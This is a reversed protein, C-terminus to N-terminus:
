DTVRISSFSEEILANMEDSEVLVFYSASFAVDNELLVLRHVQIGISELSLMLRIGVEGQATTFEEQSVVEVFPTEEFIELLLDVYEYLDPDDLVGVDEEAISLLNVGDSFCETVSLCIEEFGSLASADNSWDLPYEITFLGFVSQYVQMDGNESVVPTPTPPPAMPTPSDDTPQEVTLIYGGVDGIVASEVIILYIGSHPARYTMEANLGFVGGGSDDDSVLQTQRAGEQGVTIYTDVLISDAHIYIEEGRILSVTYVDIDGPYDINGMVVDPKFITGRDPIDRFRAVNHSALVSASSTASSLQMVDIFYPADLDIEVEGVETGVYENDVYAINNGFADFVYLVNDSLGGVEIDVYTGAPENIVFVGSDWENALSVVPHSRQGGDLPIRREGLGDVDEGAILGQIRVNLDSASAVLGFEADSFSFGSIGIVTGLESVLVGGSQGGTITADTQFYTMDIADWQRIRSVLGRTITAEPFRDVEGPYGILYVESGVISDEGDQLTLPTKDTEIPGLLALDAMLDWDVLPVDIFETQDPFVVRVSEFPWVVHANTLIYGDEILIGSGTSINSEIFVTSPSIRNFIESASLPAPTPTSTPTPTNTPTPTITPTNTVTATPPVPTSTPTPEPETACGALWMSCFLIVLGITTNFRKSYFLSTM